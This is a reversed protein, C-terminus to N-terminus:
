QHNTTPYRQHYTQPSLSGDERRYSTIVDTVHKFHGGDTTLHSMSSQLAQRMVIYSTIYHAYMKYLMSEQDTQLMSRQLSLADRVYGSCM